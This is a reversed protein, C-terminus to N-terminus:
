EPKAPGAGSGAAPDLRARCESMLRAVYAIHKRSEPDGPTLMSLGMQAVDGALCDFGGSLGAADEAQLAEVRAMWGACPTTPPSFGVVEFAPSKSCAQLEDYLAIVKRAHAVADGSEESVVSSPASDTVQSDPQLLVIGFFCVIALLLAVLCGQGIKSPKKQSSAMAKRTM